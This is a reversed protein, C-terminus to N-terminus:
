TTGGNILDANENWKKICEEKSTYCELFKQDCHYRGCLVYYLGNFGKYMTPGTNGCYPCPKLKKLDNMSVGDM